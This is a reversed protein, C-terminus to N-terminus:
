VAMSYVANGVEGDAVPVGLGEGAPLVCGSSGSEEEVM